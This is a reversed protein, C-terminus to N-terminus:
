CCQSSSQEHFKLALLFIKGGKRPEKTRANPASCWQATEYTPEVNLSDEPLHVHMTTLSCVNSQANPESQMLSM